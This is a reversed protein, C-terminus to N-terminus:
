QNQCRQNDNSQKREVNVVRVNAIEAIREKVGIIEEEDHLEVIVTLVYEM